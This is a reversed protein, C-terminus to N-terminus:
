EIQLILSYARSKSPLSDMLLIHNRVAEYNDNLSNVFPIMSDRGIMEMLKEKFECKCNCLFELTQLESM